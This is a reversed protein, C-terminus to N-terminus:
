NQGVKFRDYLGKQMQIQMGAVLFAICIWLPVPLQQSSIVYLVQNRGDGDDHM